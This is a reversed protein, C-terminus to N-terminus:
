LLLSTAVACGERFRASAYAKDEFGLAYDLPGSLTYKGLTASIPTDPILVVMPCGHIGFRRRVCSAFSAEEELRKTVLRAAM